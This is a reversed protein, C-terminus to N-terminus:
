GGVLVLIAGLALFPALPLQKTLAKRGSRVVLAVGVVAVAGFGLVLATLVSGGLIAGLLLGLKVDGMGLGGPRLLAAVLLFAGAGLGALAHEAALSPEIATTLLVVLAAAPLVIRNPLVRFELDIAALWVLLVAAAAHVAGLASAEVRLLCIAGAAISVLAAVGAHTPRLPARPEAAALASM